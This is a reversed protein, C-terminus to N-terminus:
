ERVSTYCDAELQLMFIRLKIANGELPLPYIFHLRGESPEYM